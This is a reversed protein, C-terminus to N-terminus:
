DAYEVNHENMPRPIYGERVVDHELMRTSVAMSLVREVKEVACRNGLFRRLMSGHVPSKTKTYAQLVFHYLDELLRGDSKYVMDRFVDPMFHEATILWDKARSLDFSTVLLEDTRALVSLMALKAVTLPRRGNYYTLRPHTPAPPCEEDQWNAFAEYADDSWAFTGRLKTIECLRSTLEERLEDKPAARTLINKRLKKGSYVMTVRTMFGTNWAEEPLFTSLYGPQTGMLLNLQPKPIDVKFTGHRTEDRYSDERADYLENLVNLFMLDYAPLFNGMEPASVFLSSYQLGPVGPSPPLIRTSSQLVDLLRAKTIGDPALKVFKTARLLEKAKNIALNKGSAPGGVLMVFINPYIPGASGPMSVRREAAGALASIASWLRFIEPSSLSSTFELFGEVFDSM